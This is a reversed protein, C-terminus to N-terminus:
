DLTLLVDDGRSISLRTRGDAHPAFRLTDDAADPWSLVVTDADPSTAEPLPDGHRHPYLLVRYGPEVSRSPVILRKALGFTRGGPGDDADKKEFTEVYPRPVRDFNQLDPTACRLVRVLLLPEGDEPLYRLGHRSPEQQPIGARGLVIDTVVFPTAEATWENIGRANDHTKISIPVLDPELMMTWDYRHVADDKRIDDVVLVYPRAGRVLGATRFAKEVPNWAVRMTRRDEDWMGSDRLDYGDFAAAINPHDEVELDWRERTYAARERFSKFREIEFKPGDPDETYITKPWFYGYAYSTDLATFAADETVVTKLVEGPPPPFGQGRGDIQVVNHHRSEISRFGDLTWARGLAMLAFHGRDAHDHSVYFADNRCTVNLVTADDDWGTRAILLGREPEVFTEPLDLERPHDILGDPDVAFPLLNTLTFHGRDRFGIRREVAGAYLFDTAPDNPDYFKRLLMQQFTPPGDGGDGDSNFREPRDEEVVRSQIQWDPSIRYREMALLNEGRRTMAATAPLGWVYGFGTYGVAESSVGRETYNYAFYDRQLEVMRDYTRPDYGEEGEISLSLLTFYQACNMWNWVRLHPPLQMGFTFAGNTIAAITGRTADRDDPTMHMATLDYADGLMQWGFAGFSGLKHGYAFRNADDGQPGSRWGDVQPRLRRAWQAVAVAVREGQAADERILADWAALQLDYLVPIRCYGTRGAPKPDEFAADVAAFDGAILRDITQATWSAPDRYGKDLRENMLGTLFGGVRTTALRHRIDPLDDPGFLVRPHVGVEPVHGMRDLVLGTTDYAVEVPPSPPYGLDGHLVEEGTFGAPPQAPAPGVLAVTAIVAARTWRGGAAPNIRGSAVRRSNLYSMTPRELRKM